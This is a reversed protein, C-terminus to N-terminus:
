RLAISHCKSLVHSTFSLSFVYTHFNWFLSPSNQFQATAFTKLIQLDQFVFCKFALTSDAGGTARESGTVKWCATCVTVSQSPTHKNINLASFYSSFQKSKLLDFKVLAGVQLLHEGRLDTRILIATKIIKQACHAFAWTLKHMLMPALMNRM